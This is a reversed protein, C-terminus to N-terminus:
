FEPIVLTEKHNDVNGFKRRRGAQRKRNKSFQSYRM